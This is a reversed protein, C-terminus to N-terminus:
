NTWAKMRKRYDWPPEPDRDHWLGLGVKKAKAEATVYKETYPRKLYKVFAWAYGKKVMELNVDLGDLTIFCIDRNYRDKEVTVVHVTKALILHKLQNTAEDGYPQGPEGKKATEPSDIGYLRCTIFQEINVPAIVVTDGDKVKM